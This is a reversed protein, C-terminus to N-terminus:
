LSCAKRTSLNIKKSGKFKKDSLVSNGLMIMTANGNLREVDRIVKKVRDDKLLSSEVAFQKSILIIAALVCSKILKKTVLKKVEKLAKDGAKNIKLKKKNDSIITGTKIESFFRYYLIGKTIPLRVVDLPNGIKLKVNFGGNHQGAIDGLGTKNKVEAVHAVMALEKKTKGLDLLKNLAYATALACAGSMGFGAGLPLKSKIKIKIKKDTLEKVVYGVTPLAAKKNNFFIKNKNSFNASVVAGQKTTFGVGLSHKKRPNKNEIIRFILSVNGPAFARAM